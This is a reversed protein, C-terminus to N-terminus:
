NRPRARRVLRGRARPDAPPPPACTFHWRALEYPIRDLARRLEKVSARGGGDRWGRQVAEFRRFLDPHTACEQLVNPGHIAFILRHVLAAQHPSAKLRALVFGSYHDAQLELDPPYSYPDLDHGNRIHGLEHALVAMTAFKSDAAFDVTTMFWPNYAIVPILAQPDHRAPAHFAVANDILHSKYLWVQPGTYRAAKMVAGFRDLAFATPEQAAAIIDMKTAPM